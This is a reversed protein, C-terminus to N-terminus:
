PTRWVITFPLKSVLRQWLSKQEQEARLEAVRIAVATDFQAQQFRDKAEQYVDAKNWNM